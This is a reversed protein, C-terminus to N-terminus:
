PSRSESVRAPARVTPSLCAAGSALPNPGCSVPTPMARSRSRRSVRLRQQVGLHCGVSSAAFGSGSVMVVTSGTPQLGHEADRHHHGHRGGRGAGLRHLFLRGDGDGVLGGREGAGRLRTLSNRTAHKRGTRNYLRLSYGPSCVGGPLRFCNQVIALPSPQTVPQTSASAPAAAALAGMSCCQPSHPAPPRAADDIASAKATSTPPMPPLAEGAEEAVVDDPRSRTAPWCTVMRYQLLWFARMVSGVAKWPVPGRRRRRGRRSM